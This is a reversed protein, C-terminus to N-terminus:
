PMGRRSGATPYRPRAWVRSRDRPADPQSAPRSADGKVNRKTAWRRGFYVFVGFAVAALVPLGYNIQSPDVFATRIQQGFATIMLAGPLLSLLSGLAYEWLRMRMAGALIGQVGFPPVPLMNAAFIAVVGHGCLLEAAKDLSDGALGRLTERKLFRGASYTALAAVMIGAMSCVLGLMPGLALITVLTLLPRPFMLFAGPTYALALVLPTWRSGGVSRAWGVIRHPTVIDALPTFRWAAGLACLALAILALKTWAPGRHKKKM